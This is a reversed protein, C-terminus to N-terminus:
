KSHTKLLNQFRHELKEIKPAIVIQCYAKEPNKAFYDRHEEEAPYFKELPEIKTVVPTEPPLAKNLEQIYEQAEKQQQEDQYLIISRYQTGVDAGQRNLTTPDHTAFFVTLLDQFSILTPDFEIKTVEAHGTTGNCVQVYTPNVTTGGAYGPMVSMVGKLQQFIAETCWFCGGGFITSQLENQM